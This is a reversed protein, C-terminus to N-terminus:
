KYFNPGFLKSHKYTNHLSFTGDALEQLEFDTKGQRVLDLFGSVVRNSLEVAKIPLNRYYDYGRGRMVADGIQFRKFFGIKVEKECSFGKPIIFRSYDLYHETTDILMAIFQKKLKHIMLSNYPEDKGPLVVEFHSHRFEPSYTAQQLFSYLYSSDPITLVYNDVLYYMKGDKENEYEFWKGSPEVENLQANSKLPWLLCILVPLFIIIRM